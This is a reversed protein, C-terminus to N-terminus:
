FRLMLRELLALGRAAALQAGRERGRPALTAEVGAAPGFGTLPGQAGDVTVELVAQQQDYAADLLVFHVRSAPDGVDVLTLGARAPSRECAAAFGRAATVDFALTFPDETIRPYGPAPVVRAPGFQDRALLRFRLAAPALEPARTASRAGASRGVRAAAAPPADAPTLTSEVVITHRAPEGSGARHCALSTLLALVLALPRLPLPM